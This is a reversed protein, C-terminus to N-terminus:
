CSLKAELVCSGTDVLNFLVKTTALGNEDTTSQQILLEGIGTLTWDILEGECPDNHDGFATVGFTVVEGARARGKVITVDSLTTPCVELAFVEVTWFHPDSTWNEYVAVLVAFEPAYTLHVLRKEPTVPVYYIPSSQARKVTDYFAGGAEYYSDALFVETQSRGAWMNADPFPWYPGERPAEYGGGEYTWTMSAADWSANVIRHNYYGLMRDSVQASSYYLFNSNPFANPLAQTRSLSHPEVLYMFGYQELMPVNKEAWWFMYGGPWFYQFAPEFVGDLTMVAVSSWGQLSPEIGGEPYVMQNWQVECVLGVGPYWFMDVVYTAEEGTRRMIRFPGAISYVSM